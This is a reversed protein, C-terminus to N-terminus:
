HVHTKYTIDSSYGNLFKYVETLLGDICQQYITKENLTNLMKDLTSQHDNLVFRLSKEHIRNIKQNLGKSTFM